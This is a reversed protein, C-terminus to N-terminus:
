LGCCNGAEKQEEASVRAVQGFFSSSRLRILIAKM